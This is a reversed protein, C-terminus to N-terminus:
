ENTLVITPVLRYQEKLVLSSFFFCFKTRQGGRTKKSRNTQCCSRSGTEEEDRSWGREGGGM